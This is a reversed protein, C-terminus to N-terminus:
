GHRRATRARARDTPNRSTSPPTPSAPRRPAAPSRWATAALVAALVSALCTWGLYRLEAPVLVILPLLYLWASSLLVLACLGALERRRRWAAPLALLGVILYPWGALLPTQCLRAASRMLAKHLASVNRVVPPNDRYQFEDDVYILERPWSPDHAGLLASAQRRHHALWALPYARIGNLWAARLTALEERRGTVQETLKRVSRLAEAESELPIRAWSGPLAFRIRTM